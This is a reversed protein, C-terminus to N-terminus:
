QKRAAIAAKRIERTRRREDEEEAFELDETEQAAIIDRLMALLLNGGAARLDVKARIENLGKEKNQYALNVETRDGHQGFQVEVLRDIYRGGHTIRELLDVEEDFIVNVNIEAHNQFYKRGASLEKKPNKRYGSNGHKLVYEGITMLRRQSKSIGEAIAAGLAATNVGTGASGPMQEMVRSVITSVLTTLQALDVVMQSTAQGTAPPQSPAAPQGPKQPENAM